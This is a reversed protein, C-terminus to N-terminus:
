LGRTPSNHWCVLFGVICHQVRVHSVTRKVTHNSLTRDLCAPAHDRVSPQSARRQFADRSSWNVSYVSLSLNHTNYNLCLCHAKQDTRGNWGTGNHDQPTGRHPVCAQLTDWKENQPKLAKERCM